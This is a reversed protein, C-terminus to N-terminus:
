SNQKNTDNTIFLLKVLNNDTSLHKSLKLAAQHKQQWLTPNQYKKILTKINSQNYYITAPSLLPDHRWSPCLVPLGYSLYLLYKASFGSKRIDDDSITLLGFQYKSLVTENEYRGKFNKLSPYTQPDPTEYSYIDLNINDAIYSLLKPNVWYSNLKGIHITRCIPKYSALKTQPTCTWNLVTPHNVKFNINKALKFYTYWHFSVFDSNSLAASEYRKIQKITIKSFKESLELEKFFITPSDYLTKYSRSKNACVLMDEPYQIIAFSTHLKTLIHDIIKAKLVMTEVIAKDPGILSKLVKYKLLTFGYTLLYRKSAIVKQFEVFSDIKIVHHHNDKLYKYFTEMRQENAGHDQHNVIVIPRPRYFIYGLNFAAKFIFSIPNFPSPISPVFNDFDGWKSTIISKYQGRVFNKKIALFFNDVEPHSVQMKPGFTGKLQRSKLQLDFDVDEFIKFQVDFKFNKIKNINFIVNKTDLTHTKNFWQLYNNYQSRAILSYKNLLNTKGVVFALENNRTIAQYASITWNKDLICDDDIFALFKTQCKKLAMNRKQPISPQKNKILLIKGPQYKQSYISALCKELLHPRNTIIAITLNKLTAM